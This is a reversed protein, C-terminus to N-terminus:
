WFFRREGIYDYGWNMQMKEFAKWIVRGDLYAINGGAAVDNRTMHNGRVPLSPDACMTLDFLLPKDPEDPIGVIRFDIEDRHWYGPCLAPSFNVTTASVYDTAHLWDYQPLEWREPSCSRTAPCFFLEIKGGAYANLLHEAVPKWWCYVSAAHNQTTGCPPLCRGFSSAYLIFMSHLQHLNNRCSTREAQELARMVAPSLLASLVMIVSIVVLLEILTFAQRGAGALRQGRMGAGRSGQVVHRVAQEGQRTRLHVRTRSGEPAAPGITDKSGHSILGKM